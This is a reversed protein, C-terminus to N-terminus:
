LLLVKAMFPIRVLAAMMVALRLEELSSVISAQMHTLVNCVVFMRFVFM